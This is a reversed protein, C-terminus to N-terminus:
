FSKASLLEFVSGYGNGVKVVDYPIATPIGKVFAKRALERERKSKPFLVTTISRSSPTPTSGTSRATAGQGIVECGEVSIVRDAKQVPIMESFGTM